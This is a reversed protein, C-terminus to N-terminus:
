RVRPAVCGGADCCARQHRIRRGHYTRVLTGVGVVRSREDGTEKLFTATLTPCALGTWDVRGGQEGHPSWDIFQPPRRCCLSRARPPRPGEPRCWRGVGSSLRDTQASGFACAIKAEGGMATKSRSLGLRRHKDGLMWIAWAGTQRPTDTRESAVVPLTLLAAMTLAKTFPRHRPGPSMGVVTTQASGNRSYGPMVEEMVDDPHEFHSSRDLAAVGRDAPAHAAACTPRGARSWRCPRASRPRQPAM